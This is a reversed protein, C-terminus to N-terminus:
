SKVDCKHGTIPHTSVTDTKNSTNLASFVRPLVGLYPRMKWEVNMPRAAAELLPRM